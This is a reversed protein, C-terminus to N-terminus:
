ITVTVLHEQKSSDSYVEIQYGDCNNRAWVLQTVRIFYNYWNREGLIEPNFKNGLIANRIKNDISIM